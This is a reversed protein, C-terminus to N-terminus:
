QRFMKRLSECFIYTFFIQIATVATAVFIKNNRKNKNLYGDNKKKKKKFEFAMIKVKFLSSSTNM